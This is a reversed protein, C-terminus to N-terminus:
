RRGCDLCMCGRPLDRFLGAGVGAGASRSAGDVRKRAKADSKPACSAAKRASASGADGGAVAREEADLWKAEEPSDTLVKLTLLGLLIAPLAEIIYLWQWNMLGLFRPLEM